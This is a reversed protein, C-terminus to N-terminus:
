LGALDDYPNPQLPTGSPFCKPHGRYDDYSLKGEFVFFLMPPALTLEPSFCYGIPGSESAFQAVWRLFELYPYTENQTLGPFRISLRYGEVNGTTRARQLVLASEFADPFFEEYQSAFPKKAEEMQFFPDDPLPSPLQYRGLVLYEIAQRTEVPVDFRLDLSVVLTYRCAM